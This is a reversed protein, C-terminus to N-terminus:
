YVTQGTECNFSGIKFQTASANFTDWDFPLLEGPGSTHQYIYESNFYGRGRVFSIPGGLNPDKALEVFAARARWADRSVFNCTHTAGASIGGVWPFDIGADIMEAVLAATYTGRM